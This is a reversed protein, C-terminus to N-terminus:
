LRDPFRLRSVDATVQEIVARVSTNNDSVVQIRERLANKSEAFTPGDHATRCRVLQEEARHVSRLQAEFHARLDTLSLALRAIRNDIESSYSAMNNISFRMVSPDTVTARDSQCVVFAHAAPCRGATGGPRRWVSVGGDYLLSVGVAAAL